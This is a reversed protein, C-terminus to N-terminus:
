NSYVEGVFSVGKGESGNYMAEHVRGETAMDGIGKLLLKAKSEKSQNRITKRQKSKKM